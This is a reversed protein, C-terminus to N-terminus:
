KLTTNHYPLEPKPLTVALEQYTSTEDIQIKTFNPFREVNYFTVSFIDKRELNGGLMSDM